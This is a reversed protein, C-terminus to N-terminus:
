HTGWAVVVPFKSSICIRLGISHPLFDPNTYGGQSKVAHEVKSAATKDLILGIQYGKKELQSHVM